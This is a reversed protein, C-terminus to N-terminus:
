SVKADLVALTRLTSDVPQIWPDSDLIDTSTNNNEMKTLELLLRNVVNTFSSSSPSSPPSSVHSSSTSTTQTLGKSIISVDIEDDVDAMILPVAVRLAEMAALRVDDRGDDLMLLIGEIGKQAAACCQAYRRQIKDMGIPLVAAIASPNSSSSSSTSVLHRQKFSRIKMVMSNDNDNNDDSSPRRRRGLGLALTHLLEFMSITIEVVSRRLSSPLSPCQAPTLVEQFLREGMNVLLSSVSVSVSVDDKDDEQGGDDTWGHILPFWVGGHSCKGVGVSSSSGGSSVNVDRSTFGCLLALVEARQYQMAASRSWAPHLVFVELVDKMHNHVVSCASQLMPSVLDIDLAVDSTTSAPSAATLLGFGPWKERVNGVNKEVENVTECKNKWIEGAAATTTAAMSDFLGNHFCAHQSPSVPYVTYALPTLLSVLLRSLSLVNAGSGSNGGGGTGLGEGHNLLRMTDRCLRDLLRPLTRDPAHLAVAWPADVLTNLVAQIIICLPLPYISSSPPM